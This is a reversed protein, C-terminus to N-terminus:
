DRTFKAQSNTFLSPVLPFHARILELLIFPFRTRSTPLNVEKIM